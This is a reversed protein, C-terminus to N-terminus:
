ILLDAAIKKKDFPFAFDVKRGATLEQRIGQNDLTTSVAKVWYKGNRDPFDWDKLEIAESHEVVPLGFLSVTGKLGTYLENYISNMAIFAITDSKDESSQIEIRKVEGGDNGVKVSKQKNVHNINVLELVKKGDEWRVLELSSKIVNEHTDLKHSKSPKSLFSHFSLKGNKFYIQIGFKKKIMRMLDSVSASKVRMKGVTLDPQQVRSDLLSENGKFIKKILDEFTADDTLSFAEVTQEKLKSVGDECKITVIDDLTSESIFGSFRKHLKKDYGLFVVVPTGVKLLDEKELSLEKKGWQLNKPLQISCSDGLKERDSVIEIREAEKLEYKGIQIKCKVAKM